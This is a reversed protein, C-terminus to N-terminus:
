PRQSSLVRAITDYAASYAELDRGYPDEITVPGRIGLVGLYHTKPKASPYREAIVRYTAEDFIFIAQAQGVLSDSIVTSRHETLDVGKARAAAIAEPPSSRGEEPYYGASLVNVSSPLV